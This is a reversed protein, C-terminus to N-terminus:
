RTCVRCTSDRGFCIGLEGTSTCGADTRRRGIHLDSLQVLRAGVLGEPLRAIPLQHEVQELWHPEWGWAYLLMSTGLGAVGAASARLFRRRSIPRDRHMRNSPRLTMVVNKYSWWWARERIWRWASNGWRASAMAFRHSRIAERVCSDELKYGGAGPVTQVRAHFERM